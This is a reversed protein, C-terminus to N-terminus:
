GYIPGYQNLYHSNKLNSKVQKGTGTLPLTISAFREIWQGASIEM